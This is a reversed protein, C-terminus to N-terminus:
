IRGGCGKLQGIAFTRAYYLAIVHAPSRARGILTAWMDVRLSFRVSYIAKAFRVTTFRISLFEM